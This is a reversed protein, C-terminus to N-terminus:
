QGDQAGNNAAEDTTSEARDVTRLNVNDEVSRHATLPTGLTEKGLTTSYTQLYARAMTEATDPPSALQAAEAVKRRDAALIAILQGWAEPKGAPLVWGDRHDDVLEPLGGLSSVLLPKGAARAELAVMPQNEDWTSPIAVVDVASMRELVESRKYSGRWLWPSGNGPVSAPPGHIELEVSGAPLSLIAEQLVSLGKSPHDNGFFGIRLPRPMGSQESAWRPASWRDHTTREAPQELDLGNPIVTIERELGAQQYRKALFRSPSFVLDCDHLARLLAFRATRWRQRPLRGPEDTPTATDPEGAGLAWRRLAAPALRGALARAGGRSLQDLVCRVCREEDIEQCLDGSPHVMQGRACLWKYDHLTVATAIGLENALDLPCVGWGDPHALHVLAPRFDAFIERLPGALRPDNWTERHNRAFSLRHRVWYVPCSSDEVRHWSFATGGQERDDRSLIAVEHGAAQLGLSMARTWTEVGGHSHPLYRHALLLIRM